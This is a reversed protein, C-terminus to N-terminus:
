GNTDGDFAYMLGMALGMLEDEDTVDGLAKGGSVVDPDKPDALPISFAADKYYKGDESNFYGTKWAGTVRKLPSKKADLTDDRSDLYIEYAGKDNKVAIYRGLGQGSYRPDTFLGQMLITSLETAKDRPNFLANLGTKNYIKAMYNESFEGLPAIEMNDYAPISDITIGDKIDTGDSNMIRSHLYTNEVVNLNPNTYQVFHWLEHLTTDTHASDFSNFGDNSGTNIYVAKDRYKGGNFMGRPDRHGNDKRIAGYQLTVGNDKLYKILNDVAADPMYSLAEDFATKLEDGDQQWGSNEDTVIVLTPGFDKRTRNGIQVGNERLFDRHYDARAKVYEAYAERHRDFSRLKNGLVRREEDLRLEENYLDARERLKQKGEVAPKYIKDIALKRDSKSLNGTYALEPFTPLEQQIMRAGVREDTQSFYADSIISIETDSFETNESLYKKLAAENKDSRVTLDLIKRKEDPDGPDFSSLNADYKELKSAQDDSLAWRGETGSLEEPFNATFEKRDKAINDVTDAAEQALKQKLGIVEKIDSKIKSYEPDKEYDYNLADEYKKKAADVKQRKEGSKSSAYLEAGKGRVAETAKKSEPTPDIAVLDTEKELAFLRRLKAFRRSDLKTTGEADNEVYGPRLEEPTRSTDWALRAQAAKLPDKERKRGRGLTEGINRRKPNARKVIKTNDSLAGVELNEASMKSVDLEEETSDSAETTPTPPEGGDEPTDGGDGGDGGDEPTDGGDDGGDDDFDRPTDDDGLLEVIDGDSDIIAHRDPDYDYGAQKARAIKLDDNRLWHSYQTVPNSEKDVKKMNSAALREPKKKGDFKVLVYDTYNFQGDKTGDFPLFRVIRGTAKGYVNSEWQVHDGTKLTVGNKDVFPVSKPDVNEPAVGEAMRDSVRSMLDSKQKKNLSPYLADIGDSLVSLIRERSEKNNPISLAFNNFLIAASDFDGKGLADWFSEVGSFRKRHWNLDTSLEEGIGNLTIAAHEELTRLSLDQGKGSTALIKELKAEPDATRLRKIGGNVGGWIRAEKAIKKNDWGLRKGKRIYFKEDKNFYKDLLDSIGNGEATEDAKGILSAWSNRKASYHVYNQTDGSPDTINVLINWRNQRADSQVRIETTFEQGRKEGHLEKKTRRYLVISGDPAYKADPFSRFLQELEEQRGSPKLDRISAMDKPADFESGDDERGALDQPLIGAPTKVYGEPIEPNEKITIEPDDMPDLSSIDSDGNGIRDLRSLYSIPLIERKELADMFDENNKLANNIEEASAGSDILEAISGDADYPEVFSKLSDRNKQRGDSLMDPFADKAADWNDFKQTAGGHTRNRVSITGDRNERINWRVGDVVKSFTGDRNVSWSSGFITPLETDNLKEVPTDAPEPIDGFLDKRLKVEKTNLKGKDLGEVFNRRHGTGAEKLSLLRDRLKKEYDSGKLDPRLNELQPLLRLFEDSYALEAKIDEYKEGMKRLHANRAKKIEPDLGKKAWESDLRIYEALDKKAEAVEPSDTETPAVTVPPKAPDKKKPPTTERDLGKQDVNVESDSFFRKLQENGDKDRYTVAIVEKGTKKSVQRKKSLVEGLENEEDDYLTSGEIIDSAKTKSIAKTPTPTEPEAKDKKGPTDSKSPAFIVEKLTRDLGYVGEFDTGDAYKGFMEFIPEGDEDESRVIDTLKVYVGEADPDEFYSGINGEFYDPSVEFAQIPERNLEEELSLKEDENDRLPAGTSDDGILDTYDYDKSDLSEGKKKYPDPSKRGGLEADARQRGGEGAYDLLWTLSGPSLKEKARTVAVFALNLEDISPIGSESQKEDKDETETGPFDDGIIVNDFELGKSRHATTIVIDPNEDEAFIGALNELYEKRDAEGPMEYFTEWKGDKNMKIQWTASQDAKRKGGPLYQEWNPNEGRRIDNMKQGGFALYRFNKNSNQGKAGMGKGDLFIKNGEIRYTLDGQETTALTGTSGDAGSFDSGRKGEGFVKVDESFKKLKDVKNDFVDGSLIRYWFTARSRANDKNRAHAALGRMNYINAFDEPFNKPRSGRTEPDADLWEMAKVADMLEDKFARPVAVKKNRDLMGLIATVGNYNNRVILATTGKSGDIDIDDPDFVYEGGDVESDIRSDYGLINLAANPLELLGKGFRRTQTLKLEVESKQTMRALGDIAGRFGYIAQNSDGVTTIQVNDGQNELLNSIVPNIDQAEDVFVHTIPSGDDHKLKSLDPNSLAWKKTLINNTPPISGPGTYGGRRRGERAKSYRPFSTEATSIRWFRRAYSLLKARQEPTFKDEPDVLHRDTIETDASYSFQDVIKRVVRAQESPTVNEGVKSPMDGEIRLEGAVDEDSINYMHPRAKAGQFNRALTSSGYNYGASDFTHVITSDADFRSQAQERNDRGFQWVFIRANKDKKKLANAAGVLTTTKGSGALANIVIRKANSLVASVVNKQERSPIIEDGNPKTGFDGTFDEVTNLSDIEEEPTKDVESEIPALGQMANIREVRTMEDLEDKTFERGAPKLGGLTDLNNDLSTELKDEIQFELATKLAERNGRRPLRERPIADIMGPIKAGYKEKLTSMVEARTKTGDVLDELDALLDNDSIGLDKLFESEYAEVIRSQAIGSLEAKPDKTLRDVTEWFYDRQPTGPEGMEKALEGEQKGGITRDVDKPEPKVEPVNKKLEESKKKAAKAKDIEANVTEAEDLWENAEDIKNRNLAKRAEAINDLVERKEPDDGVLERLDDIRKQTEATRSDEKPEEKKPPEVPTEPTPPPPTDEEDEVDEFDEDDLLDLDEGEDKKKPEDKPARDTDPTIKPAEPEAKEAPAEEKPEEKPEEKVPEEAKKADRAQKKKENQAARVRNVEWGELEKRDDKHRPIDGQYMQLLGQKQAQLFDDIDGLGEGGDQTDAPSYGKYLYNDDSSVWARRAKGNRVYFIQKGNNKPNALWAPTVPKLQEYDDSGYDRDPAKASEPAEPSEDTPKDAESPSSSREADEVLKKVDEGEVAKEALAPPLKALPEADREARRDKDEDDTLGGLALQIDLEDAEKANLDEVNDPLEELTKPLDHQLDPDIGKKKLFERDLRATLLEANKPSIEIVNGEKLSEHDGLYDDNTILARIKKGDPTSGIAKLNTVNVNKRGGKGDPVSIDARLSAGTAVWRGKRDRPQKSARESRADSSNGGSFIGKLGRKFARLLRRGIGAVLPQLEEDPQPQELM